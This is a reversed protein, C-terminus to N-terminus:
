TAELQRLKETPDAAERLDPHLHTVCHGTESQLTNWRGNNVGLASTAVMQRGGAHGSSGAFVRIAPLGPDMEPGPGLQGASPSRSATLNRSGAQAEWM